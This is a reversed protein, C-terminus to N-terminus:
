VGSKKRRLFDAIQDAIIALKERILKITSAIGKIDLAYRDEMFPMPDVAGFYGNNPNLVQGDKDVEKLEFHLHDGSSYGTSDAYGLLDGTQVEDGNEVDIAIFHWYRHRYWRGDPACTRVGVGLGRAEETCVEDVRGSQAAYVPTWRFAPIDIGNHGLMMSYLSRFGVPCTGHNEKVVITKNDANSICAMDDGFWQCPRWPKIPQFLFKM